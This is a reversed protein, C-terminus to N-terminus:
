NRNATISNMGSMISDPVKVCTGSGNFTLGEGNGSWGATGNRDVTVGKLHASADLDQRLVGHGPHPKQLDVSQLATGTEGVVGSSM